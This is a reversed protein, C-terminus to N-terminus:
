GAGHGLAEQQDIEGTTDLMPKLRRILAMPQNEVDMDPAVQAAGVVVQAEIRGTDRSFRELTLGSDDSSLLYLWQADAAAYQRARENAQTVVLTPGLRLVAGGSEIEIMRKCGIELM